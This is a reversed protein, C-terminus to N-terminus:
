NFSKEKNNYYDRWLYYVCEKIDKYIEQVEGWVKHSLYKKLISDTYGKGYDVNFKGEPKHWWYEVTGNKMVCWFQINTGRTEYVSKEEPRFTSVKQLGVEKELIKEEDNNYKKLMEKYWKEFKIEYVKNSINIATSRIPTWFKPEDKYYGRKYKIGLIDEGYKEKLINQIEEKIIQKINVGDTKKIYITAHSMAGTFPIFLIKETNNGIDNKNFDYGSGKLQQKAEKPFYKQFLGEANLNKYDNDSIKKWNKNNLSIFYKM